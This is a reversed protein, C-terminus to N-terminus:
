QFRVSLVKATVNHSAAFSSVLSADPASETSTVVSITYAGDVVSIQPVFGARMLDTVIVIATAQAMGGQARAPTMTAFMAVACLLGILRLKM